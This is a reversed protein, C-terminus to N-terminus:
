STKRRVNGSGYLIGAQPNSFLEPVLGIRLETSLYAEGASPANALVQKLSRHQGETERECCRMLVLAGVMEKLPRLHDWDWDGGHIFDQLLGYLPLGPGAFDKSSALSLHLFAPM